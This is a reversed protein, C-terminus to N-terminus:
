PRTHRAVCIDVWSSRKRANQLSADFQDAVRQFLLGDWPDDLLLSRLDSRNGAAATWVSVSDLSLTDVQAGTPRSNHFERNVPPRRGERLFHFLCISDAWRDTLGAFAFAGPVRQVTLTQIGDLDAPAIKSFCHMGHLMKAQCGRIFPLVLEMLRLEQQRRAAKCAQAAVARPLGSTTMPAECAVGCRSAYAADTAMKRVFSLLSAKQEAPRRIMALLRGYDQTLNAPEHMDVRSPSTFGGHCHELVPYRRTLGFIPPHCGVDADAPIGSCAHRYVTLGFSSGTKPPHLWAIPLPWPPDEESPLRGGSCRADSSCMSALRPPVLPPVM